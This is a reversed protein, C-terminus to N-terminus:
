NATPCLPVCGVFRSGQFSGDNKSMSTEVLKENLYFDIQVNKLPEKTLATIIKGDEGVIGECSFFTIAFAFFNYAKDYYNL